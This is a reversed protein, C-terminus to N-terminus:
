SDGEKANGNAAFGQEANSFMAVIPVEPVVPANAVPRM